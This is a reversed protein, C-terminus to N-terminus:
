GMMEEESTETLSEDSETEETQIDKIPNTTPEKGNLGSFIRSLQQVAHGNVECEGDSDGAGKIWEGIEDQAGDIGMGNAMIKHEECELEIKRMREREAKVAARRERRAVRNDQVRGFALVQVVVMVATYRWCLADDAHMDWYPTSGPLPGISEMFPHPSHSTVAPSPPVLHSVFTNILHLIFAPNLLIAPILYTTSLTPM